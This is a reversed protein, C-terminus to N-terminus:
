TYQAPGLAPHAFHKTTLLMCITSIAALNNVWLVVFGEILIYRSYNHSIVKIIEYGLIAEKLDHYTSSSVTGM